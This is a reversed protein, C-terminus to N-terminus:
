SISHTHGNDTISHTTGNVVTTPTVTLSPATGNGGGSKSQVTIATGLTPATHTHSFTIKLKKTDTTDMAFTLSASGSGAATVNPITKQEFTWTSASGASWNSASGVSTTGHAAISIGTVKSGTATPKGSVGSWAVSSASGASAAYGSSDTYERVAGNLYRYMPKEETLIMRYYDFAEGLYIYVKGDATSPLTQTWWKTSDLYFLGDSGITGVLYVPLNAATGNTSDNATNFFYRHDLVNTYASWTRYDSVVANEAFTENYGMWLIHGPRFGGANRAKSTGTSASTVISEWRGDAREMILTYPFIKNAGAKIRNYIRRHYYGTDNGDCYNAQAWWGEYTTGNVNGATRYTLYIIDGASYHTTLRTTGKYYCNKEGTATGNITLNLTANGNGAYPLWYAITLGDYLAAIDNCIGTWAGTAASQTGAVFPIRTNIFQTGSLRLGNGASYTTNNDTPTTFIFSGGPTTLVYKSNSALTLQNTGTSTAISTPYNTFTAAGTVVLDGTTAEDITVSNEFITPGTVTGGTLPLYATSTYANSGLGKVAVDATSGNTNVSITGNASGTSISRVGSNAITIKKNTTDDTLTIGIGQVLEATTTTSGSGSGGATFTWTFKHSALANTLTYTTNTDTPTAWTGDNRLYTTTASGLQPGNTLTNTGNWKALYGSTGSGTVNNTISPTVTVTQASGGSPTVTFGNTGNAFTYTTNNDTFKPSSGVTVGNITNASINNSFVANGSVTIGGTSITDATVSDGFEVPGTFSAGSLLAYGSVKDALTYTTGNPLKISSINAM